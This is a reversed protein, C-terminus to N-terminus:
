KNIKPTAYWKDDIKNSPVFRSKWYENNIKNIDPVYAIYNHDQYYFIICNGIKSDSLVERVGIKSYENLVKEIYKGTYELAKKRNIENAEAFEIIDFKKNSKKYVCVTDNIKCNHYTYNPLLYKVNNLEKTFFPAEYIDGNKKRAEIRIGFFIEYDSTKIRKYIDKVQYTDRKCSTFFFIISIILLTNKVINFNQNM